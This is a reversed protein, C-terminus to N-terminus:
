LDSWAGGYYEIVKRLADMQLSINELDDRHLWDNNEYYDDLSKKCLRYSDRLSALTIRDAEDFSIWVGESM